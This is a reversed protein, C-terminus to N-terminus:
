MFLFIQQQIKLVVVFFLWYCFFKCIPSWDGMELLLKQWGTAYEVSLAAPHRWGGDCQLYRGFPAKGPNKLEKRGKLECVVVMLWQLVQPIQLESIYLDGLFVTVALETRVERNGATGEANSADEPPLSPPSCFGPPEAKTLSPAPSVVWPQM